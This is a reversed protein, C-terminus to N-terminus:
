ALIKQCLSKFGRAKLLLFAKRLREINIIFYYIAISSNNKKLVLLDEAKLTKRSTTNTTQSEHVRYKSISLDIFNFKTLKSMRLFWDWDAAYRFNVNDFYLNNSLLFSRNIFASCHLLPLQYKFRWNAFPEKIVIGDYELLNGIASIRLSRGYIVNTNPNKELAASVNEFVNNDSFLDDACIVIIFDGSSIRLGENITAYQGLNSRSKTILHPYKKIIKQTEGNDCSGDDIVIHEINRFYTQGKVSLILEELYQSGNFVPTIVSVRM